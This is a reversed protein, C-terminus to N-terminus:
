YDFIHKPNVVDYVTRVNNRDRVIYHKAIRGEGEEINGDFGSKMAQKNAGPWNDHNDWYLRYHDLIRVKNDGLMELETFWESSMGGGEKIVKRIPQQPEPIVGPFFALSHPVSYNQIQWINGVPVITYKQAHIGNADIREIPIIYNQGNVTVQVIDGVQLPRPEM